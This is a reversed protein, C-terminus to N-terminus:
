IDLQIRGSGPPGGSQQQQQNTSERLVDALSKGPSTTGNYVNQVPPKAPTLKTEITHEPQAPPPHILVQPPTPQPQGVQLKRRWPLEDPPTTGMTPTERKLISIPPPKSTTTTSETTNPSQFDGTSSKRSSYSRISSRRLTPSAKEHFEKIVHEVDISDAQDGLTRVTTQNLNILKKEIEAQRSLVDVPKASGFPNPKSKRPSTPEEEEVPHTEVPKAAGFPNPKPKRPSTPEAAQPPQSPPNLQHLPRLPPLSHEFSERRSPFTNM